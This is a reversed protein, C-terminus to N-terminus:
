ASRAIPTTSRAILRHTMAAIASQRAAASESLDIWDFHITVDGVHVQEHPPPEPYIITAAPLRHRTAYALAQYVDNTSVGNVAPRKYKVDAVAIVDGARRVLIDPRIPIHRSVDLYDSAQTQVDIPGRGVTARMGAGVIEEFVRNMDVLFGIGVTNGSGEFELASSQVILRALSVALRYRSNLRTWMVTPPSLSPRTPTVEVLLMELRRLQARLRAPVSSHRLLVRAAGALLQNELTDVTYEDFTVALPLPLGPSQTLQRSLDIRGRVATLNDETTRYGQLVGRALTRNSHFAFSGAVATLLDDSSAWETDTTDWNVLGLTSGLLELLRHIEVKPSVRVETDGFHATGVFQSASIAWTGRRASDPAITFPKAAAIAQVTAAPLDLAGRTEWEQLELRM